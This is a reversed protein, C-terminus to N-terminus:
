KKKLQDIEKQLRDATARLEANAEELKKVREALAQFAADESGVKKTLFVGFRLEKDEKALVIKKTATEYGDEEFQLEYSGVPLKEWTVVADDSQKGKRLEKNRIAKGEFSLRVMVVTPSYEALYVVLNVTEPPKDAAAAHRPGASWAFLLAGLIVASALPTGKCGPM